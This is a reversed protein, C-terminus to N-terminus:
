ANHQAAKDTAAVNDKNVAARHENSHLAFAQEGASSNRVDGRDKIPRALGNWDGKTEMTRGGYTRMYEERALREDEDDEEEEDGDVKGITSDAGVGRQESDIASPM